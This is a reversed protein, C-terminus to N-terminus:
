EDDGGNLADDAVRVCADDCPIGPYDEPAQKIRELAARYRDREAM